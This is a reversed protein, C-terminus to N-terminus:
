YIRVIFSLGLSDLESDFINKKSFDYEANSGLEDLGFAKVIRYINFHKEGKLNSESEFESNLRELLRLNELDLFVEFNENIVERICKTEESFKAIKKDYMKIELEQMLECQIIVENERDIKFLLKAM